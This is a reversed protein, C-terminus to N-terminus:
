LWGACLPPLQLLFHCRASTHLQLSYVPLPFLPYMHHHNHHNRQHPSTTTFDRALAWAYHVEYFEFECDGQYRKQFKQSWPCKSRKYWSKWLSKMVHRNSFPSVFVNSKFIKLILSLLFLGDQSILKGQGISWLFHPPFTEAQTKDIYGSLNVLHESEIADCIKEKWPPSFGSVQLTSKLQHRDDIGIRWRQWFWFDSHPSMAM